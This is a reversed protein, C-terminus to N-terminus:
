EISQLHAVLDAVPDIVQGFGEQRLVEGLELGVVGVIFIPAAPAQAQQRCLKRLTDLAAQRASAVDNPALPLATISQVVEEHERSEFLARYLPTMAADFTIAQLHQGLHRHRALVSRTFGHVEIGGFRRAVEFGTDLSSMMVLRQFGNTLTKFREELLAQALANDGASGIIQPAGDLKRVDYDACPLGQASIQRRLTTTIAESSNPNLFLTRM